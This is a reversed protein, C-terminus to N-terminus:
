GVQADAVQPYIPTKPELYPEMVPESTGNSTGASTGGQLLIELAKVARRNAADDTHIYTNAMGIDSWGGLDKLTQVGAGSSALYTLYTHRLEHIVVGDLGLRARTNRWWRDLNQPHTFGGISSTVIPTSLTQKIGLAALQESQISEWQQLIQVLQIPIPVDRIGASTKPDKYKRDHEGLSHRVHITDGSIDNWTLAILEGRRLGALVAIRIGVTHSDMPLNELAYLFRLLTEFPVAKRKKTDIKPPKIKDLPNRPILDDDFASEMVAKFLVYIQSMYTGSLPKSNRSHKIELLGDEAIPKTIEHLYDEGFQAKLIKLQRRNKVLTSEALDGSLERRKLWKDSYDSFTIESVPTSLEGIFERLADEANTYTGNCRRTKEGQNTQVRLRWKRCKGKSKNELATISGKGVVKMIFNSRDM